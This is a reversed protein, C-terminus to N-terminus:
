RSPGRMEDRPGFVSALKGSSPPSLTWVQLGGGGNYVLRFRQRVWDQFGALTTLRGTSFVVARAGSAETAAEVQAPSLEGASIRALSVDVLIPATPHGTWAAAFLQDTVVYVGPEVYRNIATIAPQATPDEPPLPSSAAVLGLGAALVVGSGVVVRAPTSTEGPHRSSLAGIVLGPAAGALLCLPPVLVVLHHIFLPGQALDVALAAALWAVLMGVWGVRRAAGALGGVLAVLAPVVQPYSDIIRQVKQGLSQPESTRTTVHLGVAQGYVASLQDAYPAMVLVVAGLAGAATAGLRRWRGGEASFALWAVPVLFVVGLLKTMISLGLIVGALVWVGTGSRRRAAEAAVAVAVLGVIVSPMDAQLRDSLALYLPDFAVLAMALLGTWTGALARGILFVAVLALLSGVVVPLRGAVIGGGLLNYIPSLGGLFAPPQSSFVEAFLRHGHRMSELSQWYAGEDYDYSLRGLQLLRRWLSIGTLVGLAAAAAWQGASRGTEGTM